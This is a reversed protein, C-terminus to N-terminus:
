DGKACQRCCCEDELQVVSQRIKSRRRAIFQSETQVLATQRLADATWAWSGQLEYLISPASEARPAAGHPQVPVTRRTQTHARIAGARRRTRWRGWRAEVAVRLADHCSARRLWELSRAQGSPDCKSRVRREYSPAPGFATDRCQNRARARRHAARRRGASETRRWCDM